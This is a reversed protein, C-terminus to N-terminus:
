NLSPDEPYNIVQTYRGGKDALVQKWLEEGNNFLYDEKGDSTIGTDIDLEEQLQGASWGSYGLFFRVGDPSLQGSKLLTTLQEYNGGWWIGDMIPLSDELIDGYRHLYHMTDQAVPGGYYLEGQLDEMGAVTDDVQMGLPRNLVFGITGDEENHECILVVSRKFHPDLMFPESVLVIGPRIITSSTMVVFILWERCASPNRQILVKRISM